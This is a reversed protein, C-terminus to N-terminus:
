PLSNVKPIIIALQIIDSAKPTKAMPLSISLILSLIFTNTIKCINNEEINGGDM